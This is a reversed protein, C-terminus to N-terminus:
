SSMKEYEMSDRGCIRNLDVGKVANELLDANVFLYFFSNEKMYKFLLLKM